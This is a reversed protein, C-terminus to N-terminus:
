DNNACMTLHAPLAVRISMTSSTYLSLEILSTSHACREVPENVILSMKLEEAILCHLLRKDEPDKLFM